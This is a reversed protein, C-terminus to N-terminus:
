LWKKRRFYYLMGLAVCLMIGLVIPYGFKCRLEPMFDFNMGYISAIFTLPMMTTAIITLTKMISNLQNSTVSLYAEVAGSIIERYTDITDVMRVLHDYIDRFYVLTGSQIYPFDRRTLSNIIERQPIITKRFAILNRKLSFIQNLLRTTPQSFIKDEVIDIQEDMQDLIPFYSDVMSDLILHLLFDPGKKMLEQKEKCRSKTNTINRLPEDHVTVIFNKGIFIDLEAFRLGKGPAPDYAISHFVIFSYNPFEELKPRNQPFICDEISLPHFAFDRVLIDIEEDDPAELDVWLIADEKDLARRIASRELQNFQVGEVPTYLYITHMP